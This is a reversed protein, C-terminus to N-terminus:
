SPVDSGGETQGPFIALFFAGAFLIILLMKNQEFFTPSPENAPVSGEQYYNRNHLEAIVQSETATM